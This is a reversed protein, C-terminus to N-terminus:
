TTYINNVFLCTNLIFSVEEEESVLTLRLIDALALCVVLSWSLAMALMDKLFRSFLSNTTGSRYLGTCVTQVDLQYCLSRYRLKGYSSVSSDDEAFAKGLKWAYLARLKELRISSGPQVLYGTWGM